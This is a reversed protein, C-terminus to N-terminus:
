ASTNDGTAHTQDDTSKKVPSSAATVQADHPIATPPDVVVASAVTRDEVAELRLLTRSRRRTAAPSQSPQGSAFTWALARYWRRIM